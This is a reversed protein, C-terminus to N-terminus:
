DDFDLFDELLRRRQPHQLKRIANNEVEQIREPTVNFIRACEEPTYIYGDGIGYRLKLIERERYTLTRLLENMRQRLLRGSDLEAKRVAHVEFPASGEVCTLPLVTLLADFRPQPAQDASASTGDGITSQPSQQRDAVGGIESLTSWASSDTLCLVRARTKDSTSVLDVWGWGAWDGSGDFSGISEVLVENILLCPLQCHRTFPMLVALKVALENTLEPLSATADLVSVDLEPDHSAIQLWSDAGDQAPRVFSELRARVVKLGDDDVVFDCRSGSSTPQFDVVLGIHMELARKLDRVRRCAAHGIWHGRGAQRVGVVFADSLDAMAGVVVPMELPDCDGESIQIIAGSVGADGSADLLRLVTPLENRSGPDSLLVGALSAVPGQRDSVNAGPFLLDVVADGKGARVLDELLRFSDILDHFARLQSGAQCRLVECVPITRGAACSELVIQHFYRVIRGGERDDTAGLVALAAVEPLLDGEPPIGGGVIACLAICAAVLSPGGENETGAGLDVGDAVRLASGGGCISFSVDNSKAALEPAQLGVYVRVCGLTEAGGGASVASGFDLVSPRFSPNGSICGVLKAVIVGGTIARLSPACVVELRSGRSCRSVIERTVRAVAALFQSDVLEPYRLQDEAVKRKFDSDALEGLDESMFARTAFEGLVLEENLKDVLGVHALDEVSMQRALLLQEIVPAGSDVEGGGRRRWPIPRGEARALEADCRRVITDLREDMGFDLERRLRAAAKACRRARPWRGLHLYMDALLDNIELMARDRIAKGAYRNSLIEEAEPSLGPAALATELVQIASEIGVADPAARREAIALKVALSAQQVSAEPSIGATAQMVSRLVGVAAQPQNTELLADAVLLASNADRVRDHWMRLRRVGDLVPIGFPHIGGSGSVLWDLLSKHFPVRVGDVVRLLSGLKGLERSVTRRPIDLISAIFDDSLPSPSAVIVELMGAIADFADDSPFMKSFLSLYYAENGAPQAVLDAPSSAGSVLSDMALVAMSFLGGSVEVVQGAIRETRESGWGRSAALAASRSRVYAHIDRLNDESRADIVQKDPFLDLLAAEPRASVLLRLNPPLREGRVADSLLRAIDPGGEDLADVVLVWRRGGSIRGIPECILRDFLDAARDPSGQQGAAELAPGLIQQSYGPLDREITVLQSAVSAVMKVPDRLDVRDSRCFHVAGIDMRNQVWRCIAASKGVGAPGVLFLAPQTGSEMWQDLSDLLWERGVVREHRRFMWQFDFRPLAARIRQVLPDEPVGNEIAHVIRRVQEERRAEPLAEFDELSVRQLEYIRLPPECRRLMVPVITKQRDKAIGIENRCEGGSRVAHPSLLAVVADADALEREIREAWNEGDRLGDQDRWVRYGRVSLQAQLWAAANSADATGYSIFVRKPNM